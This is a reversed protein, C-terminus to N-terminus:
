IESIKREILSKIESKAPVWGTVVVKENIILAPTSMIGYNMIQKIDEVKNVEADINNERVVEKTIKELDNCKRCGSGLIKIIFKM